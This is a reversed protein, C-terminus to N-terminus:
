IEKLNHGKNKPHNDLRMRRQMPMVPLRRETAEGCEECEVQKDRDDYKINRTETVHGCGCEYDYTPM